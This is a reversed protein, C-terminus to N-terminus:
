ARKDADVCDSRCRRRGFTLSTSATWHNLLEKTTAVYMQTHNHEVEGMTVKAHDRLMRYHAGIAGITPELLESLTRYHVFTDGCRYSRYYDSLPGIAGISVIQNDSGITARYRESLPGITESLDSLDSLWPEFKFQPIRIPDSQIRNYGGRKTRM